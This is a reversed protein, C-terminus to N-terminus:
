RLALGYLVQALANNAGNPDALRGFLATSAELDAYWRTLQRHWFGWWM